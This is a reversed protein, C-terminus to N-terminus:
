QGARGTVAETARIRAAREADLGTGIVVSGGGLLPEVAVAHLLVSEATDEDVWLRAGPQRGATRACDAWRVPAGRVLLAARRGADPEASFQDPHARVEVVDIVGAPVGGPVPLGFADCSCALVEEAGPDGGAAIAAVGQPGVIRMDIPGAPGGGARDRARLDRGVTAGVSLAAIVWVPLQWHRPLDVSVVAGPELGLGDRLMSAAKAVANATSAVSLEIRSDPGDYHTVWPRTRDPYQGLLDYPTTV